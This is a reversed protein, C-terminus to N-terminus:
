IGSRAPLNGTWHTLLRLRWRGSCHLSSFNGNCTTTHNNDTQKAKQLTKEKGGVGRKMHSAMTAMGSRDQGQDCRRLTFPFHSKKGISLRPFPKGELFLKSHLGFNFYCLLMTHAACQLMTMWSRAVTQDSKKRHGTPWWLVSTVSVQSQPVRMRVPFTNARPLSGVQEGCLALGQRAIRDSVEM